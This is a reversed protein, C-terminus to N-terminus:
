KLEGKLRYVYDMIEVVHNKAKKNKNPYIPRGIKISCSFPLYNSKVGIPLISAKTALALRVAGSKIDRVKADLHGEPFIGVIEGQRILDKSEEFAQKPNFLPICAAWKRAITDGVFWWTPTALFHVKKDKKLFPYQMIVPDILHDHNAVIIFNKDKPINELGKIGKMFFGIISYYFIKTILYAM